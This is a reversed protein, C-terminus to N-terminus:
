YHAVMNLSAVKSVCHSGDALKALFFDSNAGLFDDAVTYLLYQLMTGYYDWENWDKEGM